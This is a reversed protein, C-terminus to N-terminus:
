IVFSVKIAWTTRSTECSTLACSCNILMTVMIDLLFHLMNILSQILLHCNRNIQPSLCCGLLLFKVVSFPLILRYICLRDIIIDSLLFLFSSKWKTIESFRRPKSNLLHPVRIKLILKELSEINENFNPTSKSKFLKQFVM